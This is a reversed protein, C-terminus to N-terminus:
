QYPVVAFDHTGPDFDKTNRTALKLDHEQALAAQFADPLHWGYERRLRAATLASTREVNLLPFRDLFQLVTPEGREEVGVLVEAATVVSLVSRDANEDLFSHARDIQNFYDILIISDLLFSPM